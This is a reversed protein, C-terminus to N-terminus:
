NFHDIFAVNSSFFVNCPSADKSLQYQSILLLSSLHMTLVFWYWKLFFDFNSSLLVDQFPVSASTIGVFECMLNVCIGTIELRATCCAVMSVDIEKWRLVFIQVDFEYNWFCELVGDIWVCVCVCFLTDYNVLCCQRPLCAKVWLCCLCVVIWGFVFWQVVLSLDNCLLSVLFAVHLLLLRISSIGSGIELIGFWSSWMFYLYWWILDM